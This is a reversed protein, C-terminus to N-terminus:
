KCAGNICVNDCEKEMAVVNEAECSYEILYKNESCTDYRRKVYSGKNYTVYGPQYIDNGEDSDYCGYADINLVSKGTLTKEPVFVVASFLIVFVFLAVLVSVTYYKGRKNM